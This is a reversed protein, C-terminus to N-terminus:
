PGQCGAPLVFYCNIFDFFDQDNQNGDGNFDYQQRPGTQTFYDNVWDFFDQDNLNGDQNWDCACAPTADIGVFTSPDDLNIWGANPCWAYGRLRGAQADVRAQQNTATLTARTDFNIWGLNEAWALGYLDGNADVNVGSDIGDANSYHVGNAPSGDGFNIWGCTESWAFGSCHTSGVNVGAAGGDADRFNIYGINEGWAYKNVPDINTQAHAAGTLAGLTLCAVLLRTRM